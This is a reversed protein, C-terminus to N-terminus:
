LVWKGSFVCDRIKCYDSSSCKLELVLKDQYFINLSENEYVLQGFLDVRMCFKRYDYLGIICTINNERFSIDGVNLWRVMIDAKLHCGLEVLNALDKKGLLKRLLFIM